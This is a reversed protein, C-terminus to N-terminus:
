KVGVSLYGLSLVRLQTRGPPEGGYEYSGVVAECELGASDQGCEVVRSRVTWKLIIRWRGREPKKIVSETGLSYLM